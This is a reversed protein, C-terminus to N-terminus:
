KEILAFIFAPSIDDIHDIVGKTNLKISKM